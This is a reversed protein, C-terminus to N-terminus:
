IFSDRLKMTVKTEKENDTISSVFCDRLPIVPKSNRYQRDYYENSCYDYAKKITTLIAEDTKNMKEYLMYYRNIYKEKNPQEYYNCIDDLITRMINEAKRESWSFYAYKIFQPIYEEHEDFYEEFHKDIFIYPNIDDNEESDYFDIIEDIIESM